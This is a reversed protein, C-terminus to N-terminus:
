LSDPLISYYEVIREVSWISGADFANIPEPTSEGPTPSRRFGGFPYALASTVIILVATGIVRWPSEGYLLTLRAMSARLWRAQWWLQDWLSANSPIRSDARRNAREAYQLRIMEKRRVFAQSQLRSLANERAIREITQYAGAARQIQDLKTEDAVDPLHM